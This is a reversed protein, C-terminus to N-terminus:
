HRQWQCGRQNCSVDTPPPPVTSFLFFIVTLAPTSVSIAQSDSPILVFCVVECLAHSIKTLLQASEVRALNQKGGLCQALKTDCSFESIAPTMTILTM